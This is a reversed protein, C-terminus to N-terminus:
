IISIFLFDELYLFKEKGKCNYRTAKEGAHSELAIGSSQSQRFNLIGIQQL